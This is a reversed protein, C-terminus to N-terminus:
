RVGCVGCGGGECPEVHATADALGLAKEIEGEIAGAVAHAEHVTMGAPVSLHFDVWHMRGHHRHRLKEYSCVRPESAGAVHADLIGRIMKNDALDQEDMLGATSRRILGWATWCLYVGIAGAVAVDVWYAGTWWVVVLGGLVGISTVVDSLLHRGDAELALSGVRKGLRLLVWGAVLNVVSALSVLALGWGLRAVGPGAFWETVAHWIVAVGAAFIMGGEFTASLFEVKGHGYPHTEDPPEHALALAYLAFSSAAVNVISELADSFVAASGTLAYASFKVGTLLVSIGVAGLAAWREARPIRSLDVARLGM